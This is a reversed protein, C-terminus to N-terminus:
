EGAFFFSKVQLNFEEQELRIKQRYYVQSRYHEARNGGIDAVKKALAGSTVEDSIFKYYSDIPYDGYCAAAGMEHVLVVCGSIAAERPVRDKGPHHGFDIYVSSAKLTDFVAARSMNQIPVARLQPATKLFAAALEAGKRPFYAFQLNHRVSSAAGQADKLETYDFLPAVRQAGNELLFEHAYESQYFHHIEPKSFYARRFSKYRLKQQNGLLANDVSLWWVAKTVSPFADVYQVFGEPLVVLTKDSLAARSFLVPSYRQYAAMFEASHAGNTSLLGDNCSIQTRDSIYLMKASGGATNIAHALQHLAEPGGTVVEPCFIVVEDFRPKM